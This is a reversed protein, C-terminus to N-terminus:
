YQLTLAHIAKTSKEMPFLRNLISNQTLIYGCAARAYNQEKQEIGDHQKIGKSHM